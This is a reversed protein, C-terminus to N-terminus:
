IKKYLVVYSKIGRLTIKNVIKFLDSILIANEVPLVSDDYYNSPLKKNKLIYEVNLLTFKDFPLVSTCQYTTKKGNLTLVVVKKIHLKKSEFYFLTLLCCISLFLLIVNIIM